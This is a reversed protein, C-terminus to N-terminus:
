QMNLARYHKLVQTRKVDLKEGDSAVRFDLPNPLNILEEVQAVSKDYVGAIFTGPVCGEPAEELIGRLGMYGNGITFISENIQQRKSSFNKSKKEILWQNDTLYKKIM